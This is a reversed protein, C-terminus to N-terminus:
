TPNSKGLFPEFWAIVSQFTSQAGEQVAGQAEPRREGFADLTESFSRWMAGTEAGYGGFFAMADAPVGIQLEELRRLIIRGGLTSGELVYLAGLAHPFSTLWALSSAHEPCPWAGLATLDSALRRSHSRQQLDLGLSSWELHRSLARELPAYLGYFRGLTTAYSARGQISGPLDLTREAQRHLEATALRLRVSLLGATQGPVGRNVHNSRDARHTKESGDATPPLEIKEAAPGRMESGGM